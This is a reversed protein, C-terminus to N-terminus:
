EDLNERLILHIEDLDEINPFQVGFQRMIDGADVENIRISVTFKTDRSLVQSQETSSNESM